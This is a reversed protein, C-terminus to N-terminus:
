FLASSNKWGRRRMYHQYVAAGVVSYFHCISGCLWLFELHGWGTLNLNPISGTPEYWDPGREKRLLILQTVQTSTLSFSLQLYINLFFIVSVPLFFSLLLFFILFNLSLFSFSDGLLWLNFHNVEEFQGGKSTGANRWAKITNSAATMWWMISLCLCLLVTIDGYSCVHM